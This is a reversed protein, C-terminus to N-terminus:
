EFEVDYATCFKGRPFWFFIDCQLVPRNIVNRLAIIQISESKYIKITRKRFLHLDISQFFSGTRWKKQRRGFTTFIFMETIGPLLKNVM